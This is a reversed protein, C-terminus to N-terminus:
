RMDKYLQQEKHILKEKQSVGVSSLTSILYLVGILLIAFFFVAFFIKPKRFLLLLFLVALAIAVYINEQFYPIFIYKITSFFDM